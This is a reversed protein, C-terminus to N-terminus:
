EKYIKKIFASLEMNFLILVNKSIKINKGNFANQPITKNLEECNYDWLEIHKIEFGNKIKKYGKL